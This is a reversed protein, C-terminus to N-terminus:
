KRKKRKRKRLEEESPDNGGHSSKNIEFTLDKISQSLEDSLKSDQNVNLDHNLYKQYEYEGIVTKLEGIFHHRDHIVYDKGEEDRLITIHNNNKYKAKLYDVIEKKLSSFENKSKRKKNQFLMYDQINEFGNRNLHQLLLRKSDEDRISYDKLSEFQRKDIESDTFEFLDKMPLLESGKFIMGTKHDILTYGFPIKDASQHFHIDIGFAERLKHQIESQFEIKPEWNDDIKDKPLMGEKERRDIVKFVKNSQIAKYKHLIAKLQNKREKTGKNFNIQNSLITKQRVGNKLIDYANEIKANKTLRFGSRELLLALQNMTSFKYQLIKEIKEDTNVGYIKEMVVTLAKQSKLKEFSDDIKKGTHKDVRTSVIHVHNNETDDHFVVIYPQDGYGMEKMFEESIRTLEEKSHERFRTSITAHFQPKKVKNNKSIAALYNKVEEQKSKENIFSPFNNMRMLEGKESQIKKDNYKVGPFSPGAAKM